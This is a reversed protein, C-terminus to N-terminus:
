CCIKMMFRASRMIRPRHLSASIEPMWWTRKTPFSIAAAEPFLLSFSLFNMIIGCPLCIACIGSLRVIWITRLSIARWYHMPSGPSRNTVFPRVCSPLVPPEPRSPSRSPVTPGNCVDLGSFWFFSALPGDGPLVASGVGSANNIYIPTNKKQSGTKKIFFKKLSGNRYDRLKWQKWM